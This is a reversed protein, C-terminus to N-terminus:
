VEVSSSPSHEAEREPRKVRPTIAGPVWRIPPYTHGLAPRSATAFLINGDNGMGPISGRDDLGYM